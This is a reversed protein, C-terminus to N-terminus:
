MSQKVQGACVRNLKQTLDASRTALTFKIEPLCM